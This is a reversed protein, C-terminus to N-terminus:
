WLVIESHFVNRALSIHNGISECSDNRKNVVVTTGQFLRYVHVIGNGPDKSQQVSCLANQDIQKFFYVKTQYFKQFRLIQHSKLYVSKQLFYMYMYIVPSTLFHRINRWLRQLQWVKNRLDNYLFLYHVALNRFHFRLSILCIHM